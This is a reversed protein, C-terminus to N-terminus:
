GQLNQKRGSKLKTKEDEQSQRRAQHATSGLTKSGSLVFRCGAGRKKAETFVDKQETM